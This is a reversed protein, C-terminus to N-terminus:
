QAGTGVGDSVDPAPFNAALYDELAEEVRRNLTELLEAAGGIGVTRYPYYAYKMLHQRRQGVWAAFGAEAVWAVGAEGGDHCHVDVYLMPEGASSRTLRELSFRVLVADIAAHVEADTVPCTEGVSAMCYLSNPDAKRMYDFPAASAATAVLLLIAPVAARPTM